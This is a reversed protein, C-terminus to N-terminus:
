RDAIWYIVVDPDNTMLKVVVPEALPPRRIMSSALLRRPRAHRVPAPKPTAPAPVPQVAPAPAVALQRVPPSVPKSRTAVIVALIATLAVLGYIWKGHWGRRPTETLQALVRARVAALHADGVPQAHASRFFALNQEIETAFNRCDTCVALHQEVAAADSPDLDGGAHLAIREEWQKCNM